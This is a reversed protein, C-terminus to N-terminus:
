FKQRVGIRITRPRLPTRERSDFRFTPVGFSFSNAASDLLNDVDLTWTRARAVVSMGGAVLWTGGQDITSLVSGSGLVSRGVHNVSGKLTVSRREDSVPTWDLTAALTDRAVNPLPSRITRDAVPDYGTVQADALVGAFGLRVRGTPNWAVTASLTKVVGDGINATVPLGNPSLVDAQIDRWRSVAASLQGSLRAGSGHRRVGAEWTDIQDADYREIVGSATQGGPRYGRGYRAFLFWDPAAAWGLALSPAFFREHRVGRFLPTDSSPDEKALAGVARGDLRVAAVRGGLTLSLRRAIPATVEGFAALDRVEEHAEGLSRAQGDLASTRTQHLISGTAAVGAVWSVRDARPSALRMEGTVLRIADGQRYITPANGDDPLFEQALSQRVLGATATLDLAGVPGAVVVSGAAFGNSSPQAAISARTLAPAGAEDYQADRNSIRQVVAGLDLTWVDDIRVRLTGRGGVTTTTNVDALGRGRDDIYGGDRTAYGLLRLAASGGVPLNVVGGVDGGPSGHFTAAGSAWAEGSWVGTEPPNPVIRVLGAMAGAGYLTGHPGELVEIRAIDYLKLDPNPAHYTLRLDGLTVGVLSAGSGNFSSDAVGRLFLKNRGPGLHTSQLSPVIRILADIDPPEGFRRLADGEITSVSAPYRSLPSGRKSATVIVEAPTTGAASAAKPRGRRPPAPPRAVIRWVDPGAAVAVARSRRLLAALADGASGSIHVAPAPEALLSPDATAISAGSLRAIQAVGAGITGAPIDFRIPRATAPAAFAPALVALAVGFRTGRRM